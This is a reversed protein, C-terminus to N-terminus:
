VSISQSFPSVMNTKKAIRDAHNRSRWQFCGLSNHTSTTRLKFHRQAAGAIILLPLLRSQSGSHRAQEGRVMLGSYTQRLNVERLRPELGTAVTDQTGNPVRPNTGPRNLDSEWDTQLGPTLRGPSQFIRPKRIHAFARERGYVSSAMSRAETIDKIM